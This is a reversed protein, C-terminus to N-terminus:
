DNMFKQFTEEFYTPSGALDEDDDTDFYLNDFEELLDDADLTLPLESLDAYGALADHEANTLYKMQAVTGDANRFECRYRDQDALYTLHITKNTRRRVPGGFRDLLSSIPHTGPIHDAPATAPKSPVALTSTDAGATAQQGALKGTTTDRLKIGDPTKEPIIAM